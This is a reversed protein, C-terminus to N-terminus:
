DKPETADKSEESDKSDKADKSDKSDKADKADKSDKANRNQEEMAKIASENYEKDKAIMEETMRSEDVEDDSTDAKAAPSDDEAAFKSDGNDDLWDNVATGAISGGSGPVVLTPRDLYAKMMEAAKEKDDEDPEPKETLAEESEDSSKDSSDEAADNPSAQGKEEEQGKEQTEQTSM